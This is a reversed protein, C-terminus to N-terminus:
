HNGLDLMNIPCAVIVFDTYKELIKSLIIKFFQIISVHFTLSKLSM